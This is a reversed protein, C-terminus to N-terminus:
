DVREFNGTAEEWARTIVFTRDLGIPLGAFLIEEYGADATLDAKELTEDLTWGEAVATRGVEALQEIFSQYQRIGDIDTLEGHGPIVNQFSLEMTKDLTASWEAVTGGAELDINPYHKNFLLDGMHITEEDVFVVVLDGDTHGRGPHFLRITKDGMTLDLADSFTENPLLAAADGEWTAADLTKLYHLTKETAVVRTGADFAPNGHTHDLHYHTNIIMVVPQGTLQEAVYKIRSGQMEFTMSDVIVTGESTRLVGVNGGMGKLLYLDETIQETELSRIQVFAYAAVGAVVIAVLLVVRVLWKLM